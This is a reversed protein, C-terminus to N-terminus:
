FIDIVETSVMIAPLEEIKNCLKASDKVVKGLCVCWAQDTSVPSPSATWYYKSEIIREKPFYNEDLFTPNDDPTEFDMISLLETITPLRWKEVGCFYNDGSFGPENLEDARQQTTGGGIIEEGDIGREAGTSGGNTAPNDNYWTYEEEPNIPPLEWLLGTTRDYVCNYPEASGDALPTSVGDSAEVAEFFKYFSLDNKSAGDQDEMPFSGNDCGPTPATPDTDYCNTIGTDNLNRGNNGDDEITITIFDFIFSSAAITYDEAETPLITLTLVKPYSGVLTPHIPLFFQALSEKPPFIIEGINSASSLRNEPFPFDYDVGETVGTNATLQFKVRLERSSQAQPLSIGIEFAQDENITFNTDFLQQDLNAVKISSFAVIPLPQSEVLEIQIYPIGRDDDPLNMLANRDNQMWLTLIENEGEHLSDQRITLSFLAETVGAEIKVIDQEKLENQNEDFRTPFVYDSQFTATTDSGKVAFRFEIPVTSPKNLTAVISINNGETVPLM